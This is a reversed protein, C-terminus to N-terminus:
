FDVYLCVLYKFCLCVVFVSNRGHSINLSRTKIEFLFNVFNIEQTVFHKIHSNANHITEIIPATVNATRPYYLIISYGPTSLTIVDDTLWRSIKIGVYSGRQRLLDLNLCSPSDITYITDRAPM